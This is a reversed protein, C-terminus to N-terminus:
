ERKRDRKWEKRKESEKDGDTRKELQGQKKILM